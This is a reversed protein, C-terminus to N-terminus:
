NGAPKTMRGAHSMPGGYRARNAPTDPVPGNTVTETTYSANAGYSEAAPAPPAPPPVPAAENPAAYAYAGRPRASAFAMQEAQKASAVAQEACSLRLPPAHVHPQQGLRRCLDDATTRIRHDLMDRGAKTTLDLDGYYVVQSLTQPGFPGYQGTVTLQEATAPSAPQALAPAASLALGAAVAGSLWLTKMQIM